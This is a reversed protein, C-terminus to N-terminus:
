LGNATKNSVETIASAVHSWRLALHGDQWTESIFCSKEAAINAITELIQRIGYRDILHELDNIQGDTLINDLM